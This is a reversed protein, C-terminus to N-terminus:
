KVIQLKRDKGLVTPRRQQAAMGWVNVFCWEDSVM